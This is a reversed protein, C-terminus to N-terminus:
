RATDGDSKVAITEAAAATAVRGAARRRAKRQPILLGIAVLLVGLGGIGWDFYSWGEWNEVWHAKTLDANRGPNTLGRAIGAPATAQWTLWSDAPSLKSFDDLYAITDFFSAKKESPPVLLRVVALERPRTQHLWVRGGVAIVVLTLGLFVLGKRANWRRATAMTPTKEDVRELSQLERLTPVDLQRGCSCTLRQGAQASSVEHKQGCACPLLFRSM